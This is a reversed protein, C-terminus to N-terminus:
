PLPQLPAERATQAEADTTHEKTRRRAAVSMKGRLTSACRPCWTQRKVLTPVAEWEHGLACRFQLKQTGARYDQSLLVGGKAAAIVRVEDIPLRQAIGRQTYSCQKCWHGLKIFSPRMEFRHGHQCEFPHRAGSGFYETAHCRGGRAAALAHMEGLPDMIRKRACYPCWAGRRIASPGADWEHGEQCRWKLKVGQGAYQISLCQGGRSAAIDRLEQMRGAQFPLANFRDIMAQTVTLGTAREVATTVLAVFEENSRRQPIAPVEILAVNHEACKARVHADRAQQVEL